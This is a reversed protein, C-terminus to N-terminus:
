ATTTEETAIRIESKKRVFNESKRAPLAKQIQCPLSYPMTHFGIGEFKLYLIEERCKCRYHRWTGAVRVGARGRERIFAAELSGTM